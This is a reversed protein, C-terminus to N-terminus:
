QPAEGAYVVALIDRAGNDLLEEALGFGFKQSEDAPRATGGVDLTHQRQANM